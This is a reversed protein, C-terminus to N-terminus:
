STIIIKISNYNKEKREKRKAGGGLPGPRGRAGREGGGAGRLLVGRAGGRHRRFLLVVVIYLSFMYFLYLMYPIYIFCYIYTLNDLLYLFSNLLVQFLESRRAGRGAAEEVLKVAASSLEGGIRSAQPVGFFDWLNWLSLPEFLEFAARFCGSVMFLHSLSLM